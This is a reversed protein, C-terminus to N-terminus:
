KKRRSKVNKKGGYKAEYEKKGERRFIINGWFPMMMWFNLWKAGRERKMREQGLQMYMAHHAASGYMEAKFNKPFFFNLFRSRKKKKGKKKKKEKKGWWKIRDLIMGRGVEM